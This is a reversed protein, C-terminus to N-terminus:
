WVFGKPLREKPMLKATRHLESLAGRLTHRSYHALDAHDLLRETTVPQGEFTAHAALIAKGATRSRGGGVTVGNLAALAASLRAIRVEADAKAQVAEALQADLQDAILAFDGAGNALADGSDM